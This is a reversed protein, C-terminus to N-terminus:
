LRTSRNQPALLTQDESVLRLAALAAAIEQRCRHSFGDYIRPLDRPILAILKRSREVLQAASGSIYEDIM